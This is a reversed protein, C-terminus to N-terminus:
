RGLSFCWLMFTVGNEVRRRAGNRRQRPALFENHLDTLVDPDLAELFVRTRPAMAAGM